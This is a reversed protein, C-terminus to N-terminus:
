LTRSCQHDTTLQQVHLPYPFIHLVYFPLDLVIHLLRHLHRHLLPHLLARLVDQFCHQPSPSTLILDDLIYWNTHERTTKHLNLDIDQDSPETRPSQIGGPDGKNDNNSGPKRDRQVNEEADTIKQNVDLVRRNGNREGAPDHSTQFPTDDVNSKGKTSKSSDNNDNGGDGLDEDQQVDETDTTDNDISECVSEPGSIIYPDAPSPPLTGGKDSLIDWDHNELAGGQGRIRSTRVPGLKVCRFPQSFGLTLGRGSLPIDSSNDWNSGLTPPYALLYAYLQDLSGGCM